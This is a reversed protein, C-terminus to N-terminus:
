FEPLKVSLLGLMFSDKYEFHDDFLTKFQENRKM